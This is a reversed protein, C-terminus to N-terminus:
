IKRSPPCQDDAVPGALWGEYRVCPGILPMAIAVSFRFRGDEQWERADVRPLLFRPLPLPGLRLGLPLMRLGGADAELRMVGTVLGFREAVVGPAVALSLRSRMRHGAFDRSWRETGDEGAEFTVALPGDAASPPFGTAWAALRAALGRPREASYRGRATMRRGTAHMARVAAPLADFAAAGVARRFLPPCPTAAERVAIPLHAITQSLDALPLMALCPRAGPPELGALLRAAVVAAPVAPITPGSGAEAIVTWEACIEDPPDGLWTRITMGGRDSGFGILRDAVAKLPRALPALRRVLRWRVPWALAWLGLHLLSLELGAYFRADTLGPFLKPLLVADPMEVDSFWRAGLSEARRRNRQRGIAQPDGDRYDDTISYKSGLHFRGPRRNPNEVSPLRGIDFRHVGGWGIRTTPRGEAFGAIPRGAYSLIARVVALGRPTRNGPSLWTAVRRLPRGHRAEMAALVASTLAPVTSAGSVVTVGAARAAANLSNIGAVFEAGDALDVYHIGAAICAAAVRYDQGQFPGAAHIVVAVDLARLRATLDPADADLAVADVGSEPFQAALAARLAEAKEASRGAVFIPIGRRLLLDCARSGFV